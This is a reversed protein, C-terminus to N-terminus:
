YVGFNVCNNNSYKITFEIKINENGDTFLLIEDVNNKKLIGYDTAGDHITNELEKKLSLWDGKEISFLEELIIENSFM